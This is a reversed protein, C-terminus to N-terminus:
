KAERVLWAAAAILDVTGDANAPLGADVDAALAEATALKAGAESLLAAMDKRSLARLSLRGGTM